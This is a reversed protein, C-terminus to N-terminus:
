CGGGSPCAQSLTTCTTAPVPETSAALTMAISVVTNSSSITQEACGILFDQSPASQAVALFAYSGYGIQLSGKGGMLDCPSVISSSAVPSVTLNNNRSEEVLMECSASAGGEGGGFATTSFAFVQVGPTSKVVAIAAATSPFDVTFTGSATDGGSGCASALVFPAVTVCGLCGLGLGQGLLRRTTFPERTRVPM